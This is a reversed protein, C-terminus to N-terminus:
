KTRKRVSKLMKLKSLLQTRIEKWETKILPHELRPQLQISQMITKVPDSSDSDRRELPQLFKKRSKFCKTTRLGM